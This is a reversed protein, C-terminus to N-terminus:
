EILPLFTQNSTIKFTVVSLFQKQLLVEFKARAKVGYFGIKSFKVLSIFAVLM